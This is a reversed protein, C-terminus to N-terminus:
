EQGGANAPKLTGKQRAVELLTPYFQVFTNDVAGNQRHCSYCSASAGIQKAETSATLNFFAWGGPFRATDKVEAEIAVLETQVRGGNNISVKTEGKRVELIFMTKEPWTGTKLFSKYAGPTVFVNDFRPNGNADAAGAPGYTMGLGSSLFIWERYDAPLILMGDKTYQPASAQQGFLALAAALCVTPIPLKM